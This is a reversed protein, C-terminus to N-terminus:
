IKTWAVSITAFLVFLLPFTLFIFMVIHFININPISKKIEEIESKYEKKAFLKLFFIIFQLAIVFAFIRTITPHINWNVFLLPFIIIVSLIKHIPNFTPRNDPVIFKIIKIISSRFLM